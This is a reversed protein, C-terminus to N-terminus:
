LIKIRNSLSHLLPHPVLLAVWNDVSLPLDNYWPCPQANKTKQKKNKQNKPFFGFFKKRLFNKTRCWFIGVFFHESFEHSAFIFLVIKSVKKFIGMFKKWLIHFIQLFFVLKYFNFVHLSNIIVTQHFKRWNRSFKRWIQNNKKTKKTM